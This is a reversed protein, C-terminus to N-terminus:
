PLSRATFLEAYALEAATLDVGEADHVVRLAPAPIPEETTAPDLDRHRRALAERRRPDPLPDALAASVPQGAQQHPGSSM